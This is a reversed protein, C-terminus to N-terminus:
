LVTDGPKPPATPIVPANTSTVAAQGNSPIPKRDNQRTALYVVAGAALLIAVLAIVIMPAATRRTKKEPSIALQSLTHQNPASMTSSEITLLDESPECPM